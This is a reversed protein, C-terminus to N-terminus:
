NCNSAFVAEKQSSFAIFHLHNFSKSALESLTFGMQRRKSDKGHRTFSITSKGNNLAKTLEELTRASNENL